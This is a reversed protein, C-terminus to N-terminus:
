VPRGLIQEGGIWAVPSWLVFFFLVPFGDYRLVRFLWEDIAKARGEAFFGLPFVLLSLGAM